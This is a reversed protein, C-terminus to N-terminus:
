DGAQTARLAFAPVSASGKGEWTFDSERDIGILSVVSEEKIVRLSTHYFLCGCKKVNVWVFRRRGKEFRRLSNYVGVAPDTAHHNCHM